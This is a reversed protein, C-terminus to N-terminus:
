LVVVFTPKFILNSTSGKEKGVYDRYYQYRFDLSSFIVSSDLANKYLFTKFQIFALSKYWM